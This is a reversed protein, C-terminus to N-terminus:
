KVKQRTAHWGPIGGPEHPKPPVQPDVVMGRQGLRQAMAPLDVAGEDEVAGDEVPQRAGVAPDLEDPVRDLLQMLRQARERRAGAQDHTVGERGVLNRPQGARQAHLRHEGIVVPLRGREGAVRANAGAELAAPDGEM